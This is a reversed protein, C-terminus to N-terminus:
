FREYSMKDKNISNQVKKKKLHLSSVRKRKSRTILQVKLFTM